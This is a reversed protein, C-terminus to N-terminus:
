LSQEIEDLFRKFDGLNNQMIEVLLNTDIAWYQHVLSTM